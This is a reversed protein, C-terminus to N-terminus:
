NENIRLSTLKIIKIEVTATSDGSPVFMQFQM